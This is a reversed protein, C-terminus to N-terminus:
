GCLACTYGHGRDDSPTSHSRDCSSKQPKMNRDKGESCAVAPPPPPQPVARTCARTHSPAARARGQEGRGREPGFGVRDATEPEAAWKECRAAAFVRNSSRLGDRPASSPVAQRSVSLARALSCSRPAATSTCPAPAHHRQRQMTGSRAPACASGAACCVSAALSARAPCASALQVRAVRTLVRRVPRRGSAYRENAEHSSM